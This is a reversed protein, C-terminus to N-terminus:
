GGSGAGVAPSNPVDDFDASPKPDILDAPRTHRRAVHRVIEVTATIALSLGIGALIGILPQHAFAAGGLFGIAGSYIAWLSGGLMTARSFRRLPYGAIGCALTVATRGGPIFRSSVIMTGGRRDLQRSVAAVAARLRRSRRILRPGLVSRGIAYSLHDGVIAGIAAAVVVLLQNPTGATAAFVGAAIVAGEAPIAPFLVDGAAMGATIPYILPSTMWPEIMALLDVM